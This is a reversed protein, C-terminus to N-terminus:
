REETKHGIPIVAGAVMSEPLGLVANIEKGVLLPGTMYCAGFSLSEAALLILMCICSLSKTLNDHEFALLEPTVSDRLLSKLTATERSYPVLLVPAQEFITFSEAYKLFIAAREPEMGAALDVSAARVRDALSRITERDRVVAVKWRTRGTAFPSTAAVALIREIDAEDVADDARFSRYSKRQQALALLSPYRADM